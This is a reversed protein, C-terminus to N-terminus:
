ANPPDCSPCSAAAAALFSVCMFYHFLSIVALFFPPLLFLWWCCWVSSLRWWWRWNGPYGVSSASEERACVGTETNQSQRLAKGAHTCVTSVQKSHLFALTQLLTKVLQRAEHETYTEKDCIREFLEGGGVEETVM